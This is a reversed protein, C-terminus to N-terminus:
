AGDADIVMGQWALYTSARYLYKSGSISLFTKWMDYSLSLLTFHPELCAKAAAAQNPGFLSLNSGNKLNMKIDTITSIYCNHTENMTNMPITIKDGSIKAADYGGLVLTGDMQHQAEAGTWGQWYSWTKSPISGVSSLFNLLTSNAGLGLTNMTEGPGRSVSIPFRPISVNATMRITDTGWLDMTHNPDIGSNEIATKLVSRTAASSWTSSNGEDFLGGLQYACEALTDNTNCNPSKIPYQSDFIYTNNLASLCVTLKTSTKKFIQISLSVCQAWLDPGSIPRGCFDSQRAELKPQRFYREPYPDCNSFPCSM